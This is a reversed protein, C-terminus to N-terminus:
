YVVIKGAHPRVPDNVKPIYLHLIGDKYEATSMEVATNEPVLIKREFYNVDFEHMRPEAPFSKEDKRAVDITIVNEEVYVIIDQKQVGPLSVEMRFLHEFEDMNVLPQTMDKDRDKLLKETEPLPVYGGPYTFFAEAYLLDHDM